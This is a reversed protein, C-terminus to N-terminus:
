KEVLINSSFKEKVARDQLGLENKEFIQIDIRM